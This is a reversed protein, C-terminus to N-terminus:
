EGEPKPWSKPLLVWFKPANQSWDLQCTYCFRPIVASSGILMLAEGCAGCELVYRQDKLEPYLAIRLGHTELDERFSPMM